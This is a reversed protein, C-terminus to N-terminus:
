NGPSPMAREIAARLEDMEIGLGQRLPGIRDSADLGGQVGLQKALMEPTVGTEGQLEGLTTRGTPRFAGDPAEHDTIVADLNAVEVGGPSRSQVTAMFPTAIAFLVAATLASAIGLRLRRGQKAKGGIVCTVWKWHLALHVGITALMAMAVWFHLSGWAHRDLGWLTLWHGTGAPLVSHILLGTSALVAFELAALADVCFNLWTRSM